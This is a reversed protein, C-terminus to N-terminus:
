QNGRIPITIVPNNELVAENVTRCGVAQNSLVAVGCITIPVNAQIPANVTIPSNKILELNVNNLVNVGQVAVNILGAQGVAGVFRIVFEQTEGVQANVTQMPIAIASVTLIAALSIYVSMKKIKIIEKNV